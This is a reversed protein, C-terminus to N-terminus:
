EKKVQDVGGLVPVEATTTRSERPGHDRKLLIWIEAYVSNWLRESRSLGVRDFWDVRLTGLWFQCAFAADLDERGDTAVVTDIFINAKGFSGAKEALVALRRGVNLTLSLSLNM